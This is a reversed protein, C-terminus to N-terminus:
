TVACLPEGLNQTRLKATEREGLDFTEPDLAVGYIERSEEFTIIDDLVAQPVM